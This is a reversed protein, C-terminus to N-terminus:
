VCKLISFSVNGGFLYPEATKSAVAELKELKPFVIEKM